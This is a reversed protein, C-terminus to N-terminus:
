SELVAGGLSRPITQVSACRGVRPDFLRPEVPSVPTCIDVGLSRGQSCRAFRPSFEQGPIANSGDPLSSCDPHDVWCPRCHASRGCSFQKLDCPNKTEPRDNCRVEEAPRCSKSDSDWLQLYPCEAEFRQMPDLPDSAKSCNYFSNCSNYRALVRAQNQNCMLQLDRAAYEVKRVGCEVTAVPSCTKTIDDFLTGQPCGISGTRISCDYYNSCSFPDAFRLTPNAACRRRIYTDSLVGKPLCRDSQDPTVCLGNSNAVTGDPCSLSGFRQTFFADFAAITSYYRYRQCSDGSSPKRGFFSQGLALDLGVLALLIIHLVSSM